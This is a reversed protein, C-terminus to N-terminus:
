AVPDVKRAQAVSVEQALTALSYPYINADTSM